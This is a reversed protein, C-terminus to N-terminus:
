YRKSPTADVNPTGISSIAQSAETMCFVDSALTSSVDTVNVLKESLDSVEALEFGPNVKVSPGSFGSGPEYVYMNGSSDFQFYQM